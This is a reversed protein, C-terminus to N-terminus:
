MRRKTEQRLHARRELRASRGATDGKVSCFCRPVSLIWFPVHLLWLISITVRRTIERPLSGSGHRNFYIAFRVYVRRYRPIYVHLLRAARREKEREEKEVQKIRKRRKHTRKSARRAKLNLIM